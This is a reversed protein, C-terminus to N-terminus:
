FLLLWILLLFFLYLWPTRWSIAPMSRSGLLETSYDPQSFDHEELLHRPNLAATEQPATAPDFDVGAFPRLMTLAFFIEEASVECLNLWRHLFSNCFKFCAWAWGRVEDLPAQGPGASLAIWEMPDISQKQETERDLREFSAQSTVTQQRM